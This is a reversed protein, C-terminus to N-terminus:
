VGGAARSDPGARGAPRRFGASSRYRSGPTGRSGRRCGVSRAREEEDVIPRLIMMVPPALGVIRLDPDVGQRGHASVHQQLRYEPVVGTECRECRQQPRARFTIREEHLLAYLRQDLRAEQDPCRPGIPQRLREVGEVHGRGHLRHQRRVDVPQRQLLFMHELGRRDDAGLHGQGQQLGNGLHGLRGHM